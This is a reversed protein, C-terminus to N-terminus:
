IEKLNDPYKKIRNGCFFFLSNVWYVDKIGTSNNLFGYRVLEDVAAQYTNRTCSSEKMYREKNIWVYDKGVDISYEVFRLLHLARPSTKMELIRSKSDRYLKTYEQQEVIYPTKFKSTDKTVVGEKLNNLHVFEQEIEIERIKIVFEKSYTFPNVGLKAENIDPKIKPRATKTLKTM